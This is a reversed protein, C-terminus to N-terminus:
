PQTLEPGGDSIVPNPVGISANLGVQSPVSSAGRGLASSPTLLYPIPSHSRDVLTTAVLLPTDMTDFLTTPYTTDSTLTLSCCTPTKIPGPKSYSGSSQEQFPTFKRLFRRNRKTVHNSGDVKVLFSEHPLSQLVIGLKNWKKPTPGAQDQIYVHDGQVLQSLIRQPHLRESKLYHRKLFCTEREKAFQAWHKLPAYASQPIMDRIKHGFVIEAPSVKTHPDPANRHSLLAQAFQNTQLSGKVGTNDRILRKAAKIGLEARINSEAYYASSVRHRIGWTSFFQAM